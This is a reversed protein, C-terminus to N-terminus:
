EQVSFGKSLRQKPTLAPDGPGQEQSSAGDAASPGAPPAEFGAALREHPSKGCDGEESARQKMTLPRDVSFGAALKQAPTFSENNM